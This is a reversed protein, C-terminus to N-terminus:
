KDGLRWLGGDLVRFYYKLDKIDFDVWVRYEVIKLFVLYEM